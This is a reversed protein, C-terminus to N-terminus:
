WDGLGSCLRWGVVGGKGDSLPWWVCALSTRVLEVFTRIVFGIPNQLGKEERESIWAKKEGFMYHPKTKQLYRIPKYTGKEGGRRNSQNHSNALTM